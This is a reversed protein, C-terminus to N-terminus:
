GQCTHFAASSISNQITFMHSFEEPYLMFFDSNLTFVEDVFYNEAIEFHVCAVYWHGENLLAIDKHTQATQM